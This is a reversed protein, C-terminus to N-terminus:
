QPISVNQRDRLTTGCRYLFYLGVLQILHYADNHNFPQHRRVGSQQVAVGFITVGVAAMLWKFTSANQKIHSAHVGATIFATAAGAAYITINWFFKRTDPDLHLAFGHYTGGFGASIAVAAFGASWLWACVRTGPGIRRTMLIAFTLCAATLLYDTLMTVPETIQM